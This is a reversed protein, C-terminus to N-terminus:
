AYSDMRASRGQQLISSAVNDGELSLHEGEHMIAEGHLDRAGVVVTAGGPGYQLLAVNDAGLGRQSEAYLRRSRPWRGPWAHWRMPRRGANRQNPPGRKPKGASSM